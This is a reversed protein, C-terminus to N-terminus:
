RSPFTAICAVPSDLYLKYRSMEGDQSVASECGVTSTSSAVRRIKRWGGEGM